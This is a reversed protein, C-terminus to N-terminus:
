PRAARFVAVDGLRLVEGELTVRRGVLDRFAPLGPGGAADGLVMMAHGAVPRTPVFIAPLEGDLCLTACARHALGTGPVMGGAACKGDCIEGTIRWRGLSEPRPQPASGRDLLPGDLVLMEIDGRRILYGEAAVLRGGPRAEPPAGLKGDRALLLTRGAPGEALQLLPYPADLLVGTLSAPAPLDAAPTRGPVTAFGPPAPDDALGGLAAGLLPLGLLLAAALPLLGRLPALSAQWGIFFPPEESRM